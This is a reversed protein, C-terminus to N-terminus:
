NISLNILEIKINSAELIKISFNNIEIVQNLKPIDEYNFLIWGAITEYDDSDPINFSYKENLLDIELRGSLIYENDSIKKDVFL